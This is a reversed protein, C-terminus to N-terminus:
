KTTEQILKLFDDYSCPKGFYYGQIYEPTLSQVKTLQVETETGEICVNLNLSHAMECFLMLLNYEFDSESAKLTFIQDIKIIDPDLTTLYRFNSYGSGFDDLALKVGADKLKNWMKAFRTDSELFGSETLEVTVCSPEMDFESISSIVDSGVHSKMIQVPSINVSIRFGPIISQFRKCAGLAQNLIWRGAPIILGTEELIPIFEAPSIMGLDESHFRMLTEAGYISKLETSYIPQFYAEFGEFGSNVARRLERMLKRKRLFNTYDKKDFVYCRNRGLHKAKSLAYETPKILASFTFGEVDDCMVLGASITFVAEYNNIEIFHEISTRIRKYLWKGDEETGGLFDLVIFQDGTFHYVKQGPLIYSNIFEAIKSILMDGYELGLRANIGKLDDIDIRLLFGKPPAQLSLKNIYQEMSAEGLLGSINDAKQRTGIENICGAM